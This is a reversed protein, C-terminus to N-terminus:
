RLGSAFDDLWPEEETYGVLSLTAVFQLQAVLVYAM